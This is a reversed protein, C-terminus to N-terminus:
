RAGDPTWLLSRRLEIGQQALREAPTVEAPSPEPAAVLQPRQRTIQKAIQRAQARRMRRAMSGM